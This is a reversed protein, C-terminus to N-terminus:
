HRRGARLRREVGQSYRSMSFCFIWYFAAATILGTASTTPSTWNPDNFGSEVTRLFDFIGVIAVLSTDKFLSIFNSVIGPIVLALAQPLIILRMTKWYSLGVSAAGEFQGKPMAQLGGRVVEAMYAAAFLATGVLPRLLRDPTWGEPLFLPLMFNAMFLVVIFPVGRVIEIFGTCVANVIPLPSRRGLALLVGLPLSFVIGVLSLLLTVTVGGWLDTTVVPLGLTEAGHLLVFSLIPYAVFFLLAAVNRKPAGQWLLWGLLVAGVIEVTNVRWHQTEPYPGYWFFEAKAWIFPWCAGSQNARCVDANAGQWNADVFLFRVLGPIVWALFAVAAVTLVTSTVGSFLNKRAWAVPGQALAPPPEAPAPAARLYAPDGSYTADTM